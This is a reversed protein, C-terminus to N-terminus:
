HRSGDDTHIELRTKKGQVRKKREVCNVKRKRIHTM